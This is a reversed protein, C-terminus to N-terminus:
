KDNPYVLQPSLAPDNTAGNAFQTSPNQPIPNGNDPGIVENQFLVTITTEATLSGARARVTTTGGRLTTSTFTAGTFSGLAFDGLEFLVDNTIDREGDPFTGFAVFQATGAATPTATVVQDLPEIRLSMLGDLNGMDGTG